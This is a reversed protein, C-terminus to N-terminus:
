INKAQARYLRRLYKLAQARTTIEGAARAEKLAELYKGVAPGPDLGLNRMVDHGDIIKSPATINEATFRAALVFATMGTHEQWGAMDLSTGRTALHDALCLFLVDIGADGLDRFFRYIARKTPLGSESMQTPRLHYKILLEVLQIERNSFRLRTMIEMAAAAGQEPHGLFRARGDDLTKTQPKAIDHLLAALKLLSRGTSGRSVERSFYRDLEDSWPVYALVDEVAFDWSAEQLVFEVAAVTQLSHDFVDWVHLPPQTIGKAPLLEPFIPTLLGLQELYFLRPGAGPLALLRLLEERLREGAINTVLHSDRSILKETADDIRFDLEAALRVARLLRAPDAEFVTNNVAKILRRKLATLGDFPDIVDHISLSEPSKDLPLAMADITFDRRSLDNDIDSNLTTFDIQHKKDPLVLRGVRNIDDLEVYSAGFDAALDRAILLADDAVAIDIDDTARGLLADRVFGGVIFAPVHRKDLFRSIQSLLRSADPTKVLRSNDM